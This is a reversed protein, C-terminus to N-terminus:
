HPSAPSRLEGPMRATLQCLCAASAAPATSLCMKLPFRLESGNHKNVDYIVLQKREVAGRQGTGGGALSDGSGGAAVWGLHGGVGVGPAM